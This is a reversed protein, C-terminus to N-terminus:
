PSGYRAGLITSGGKVKDGLNVRVDVGIPLFVDVRSGFRIVGFREGPEVRDGKQVWCVIRRAILGAIQILLIKQGKPTELVLANQENELSAKEKAANLFKGPNYFTGQVTGQCPIRNVHVNFVNMFISIKVAKEKLFRDEYLEQIAVIRGDAPSVFLGEGQPVIRHPNRFFIFQYFLAIGTILSFVKWQLSVGLALLLLFAGIFPFGEKAVPLDNRSWIPPKRM